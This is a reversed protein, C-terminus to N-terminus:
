RLGALFQQASMEAKGAPKLRDIVLCGNGTRMHICKSPPCNEDTKEVHAATIIVERGYLRTTSGPWNLYARIQNEIQKAPLRWNIVGDSKAILKDATALSSDQDFPQKSGGLIGPLCELLLSSGLESLKDALEQKSEDGSLRIKQQAWIPGADMQSKLQMISVGTEPEDNLIVSEIPIPGRHRPLLSPHINIIGLPFIDIIAQPILQGYAALIGLKAGYSRLGEISDSPSPPALIPIDNSNAVESIELMRNRRSSTSHQNTVVACVNYGSAILGRLAPATTTVGTALRENGFFVIPAM